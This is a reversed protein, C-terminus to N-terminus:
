AKRMDKTKYIIKIYTAGNVANNTGMMMNIINFFFFRRMIKSGGGNKFHIIGYKM